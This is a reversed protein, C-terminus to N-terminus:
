RTPTTPSRKLRGTSRRRVSRESTRTVQAAKAQNNHAEAFNPNIRTAEAFADVAQATEGRAGLIVGLNVYINANNPAVSIAQRLLAVAQDSRGTQQSLVGLMQLSDSHNPNLALAQQYLTEAGQVQGNQHLRQASLFLQQVQQEATM